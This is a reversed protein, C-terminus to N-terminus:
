NELLFSCSWPQKLDDQHRHRQSVQGAAKQLARDNKSKGKKPTKAKPLRSPSSGEPGGVDDSQEEGRKRKKRM